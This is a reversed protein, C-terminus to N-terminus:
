LCEPIAEHNLYFQSTKSVKRALHNDQLAWGLEMATPHKETLLASSVRITYKGTGDSMLVFVPEESTMDDCHVTCQPFSKVLYEQIVVFKRQVDVNEMILGM